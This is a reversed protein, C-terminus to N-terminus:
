SGSLFSEVSRDIYAELESMHAKVDNRTFMPATMTNSYEKIGNISYELNEIFRRFDKTPIYLYDDNIDEVDTKAYDIQDQESEFQNDKDEEKSTEPWPPLAKNGTVIDSGTEISKDFDDMNPFLPALPLQSVVKNEQKEKPKNGIELTTIKEIQEKIKVEKEERWNMPRADTYDLLWTKDDNVNKKVKIFKNSYEVLICLDGKDFLKTDKKGHTLDELIMMVDGSKPFSNQYTFAYYSIKVPKDENDKVYIMYENNSDFGVCYYWNYETLNVKNVHHNNYQYPSDFFMWRGVFNINKVQSSVIPVKGSLDPGPSYPVNKIKYSHKINGNVITYVYDEKFEQVKDCGIIKLSEEISSIYMDGNISGRYLPREKNRFAYLIEPNNIDHALIACGGIIEGLVKFSVQKQIIAFIIDSDVNFDQRKLGERDCLAWHNNTTGNMVGLLNHHIFPHANADNNIGVTGSRVHGIFYNDPKIDIKPLLDVPKGAKKYVGNLPSFLGISDNGRTLTNYTFLLKLKDVNYQGKGSFGLIGCM